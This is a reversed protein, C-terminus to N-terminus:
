NPSLLERAHALTAPTVTEGGLMRALEDVREKDKLPTIRTNTRGDAVKKNIKFHHEGFKAIQPLHTICLIQHYAALRALKKGVMEAVGGGIGADVEDFVVTELLDSRALIAKLALVVRSLEGGSAIAALPKLDEGTNPAIMFVAQDIGTEDIAYGDVALFPSEETAPHRDLAVRFRTGSMKLEALEAEVKSALSAASKKRKESIARAAVALRNHVAEIENRCTDIDDGLNDMGTLAAEIDALKALVADLDGGYKRKLKTLLDLRTEVAELRTDNLELSQLYQRLQGIADEIDFLSGEVADASPSLAADLLRAEQIKRSFDSLREFISGPADYLDNLGEFVTQYLQTVNKLRLREQELEEDERPLPAITEIEQKQFLLLEVQDARRRRRDKLDTLRRLLPLLQKYLHEVEQRLPILGGFQDLIPLHQDQHLLGQHAHQGSISALNAAIRTLQALASARGNIYVRHREARSLVRRIILGDDSELDNDTLLRALDSDPPVSFRAELEAKDAGKRILDVGARSGLLLNVANIIISKGAGTEGSLITLGPSFQVRLNDIIAFNKIALELLM